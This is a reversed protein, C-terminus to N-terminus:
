LTIMLYFLAVSSNHVLQPDGFVLCLSSIYIRSQVPDLSASLDALRTPDPGVKGSRAQLLIPSSISNTLPCTSSSAQNRGRLLPM